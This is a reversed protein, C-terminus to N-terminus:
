TDGMHGLADQVAAVTAVEGFYLGVAQSAHGPATQPGSLLDIAKDHWEASFAGVADEVLCVRFFRDCAQVATAFVCVNTLIGALLIKRVGRARLRAELDTSAFAGFTWKDVVIEGPLARLSPLLEYGADVAGFHQPGSEVLPPCEPQTGRLLDTRVAAGYRHSRSHAITLGAQRAAALIKQVQTVTRALEDHRSAAYHRGLRGQRHLFDTQMDILVLATDSRSVGFSRGVGRSCTVQVEGDSTLGAALAASIAAEKESRARMAKAERSAATCAWLERLLWGAGLAVSMALTRRGVGAGLTTSRALCTSACLSVIAPLVPWGAPPIGISAAIAATSSKAKRPATAAPAMSVGVGIDVGGVVGITDIGEIAGSGCGVGSSLDGPLPFDSSTLAAAAAASPPPLPTHQAIAPLITASPAAWGVIGGQAIIMEITARKFSPFYSETADTVLLCDYGRDNAERLTSQVCVETTVGTVILHTIGRARLEAHLATGCFAGKGPKYLVLEGAIPAVEPVIANGPEGAVLLRGRAAEGDLVTGIACCRRLKASPLDSLDPTHAELTHIIPLGSTRAARLIAAAAPLGCRLMSVDNGLAHGFGGEELFDRQWDIMIVAVRGTPPVVFAFPQADEVRM